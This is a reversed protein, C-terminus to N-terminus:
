EDVYNSMIWSGGAYSYIDYNNVEDSVYWGCANMQYKYDDKGELVIRSVGEQQAINLYEQLGDLDSNDLYNEIFLPTDWRGYYMPITADYQHLESVINKSCIIKERSYNNSLHEAVWITEAKLNYRNIPKSFNDTNIIFKGSLILACVFIIGVIKKKTVDVSSLIDVSVCAVFFGGLLCWLLRSAEGASAIKSILMVTIPNAAVIFSVLFPIVFKEKNGKKRIFLYLLALIWLVGYAGTGIVRDYIGRYSDLINNIVEM